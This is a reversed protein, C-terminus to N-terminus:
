KYFSHILRKTLDLKMFKEYAIDMVFLVLQGGIICLVIIGISLPRSIFLRPTLIFLPIYLMNFVLYRLLWILVRKNTHARVFERILLYLGFAGYTLCYLKNPLLILSTILCVLYFIVGPVIGAGMVAVGILFSAAATLFLTNSEVVMGLFMLIVSVAALVGLSALQKTKIHM